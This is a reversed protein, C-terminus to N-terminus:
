RWRGCTCFLEHESLSFGSLENTLKLQLLTGQVDGDTRVDFGATLGFCFESLVAVLSGRRISRLAQLLSSAPSRSGYGRVAALRFPQPLRPESQM